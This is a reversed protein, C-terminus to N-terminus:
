GSAVPALELEVLRAGSPGFEVTCVWRERVVEGFTNRADVTSAVTWRPAQEDVSAERPPPFVASDPERLRGLVEGRCAEWALVPSGGDIGGDTDVLLAAALLAATLVSGLLWALRSRRRLPDDPTEAM